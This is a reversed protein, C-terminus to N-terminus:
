SFELFGVSDFRLNRSLYPLFIFVLSNWVTKVAIKDLVTKIRYGLQIKDRSNM